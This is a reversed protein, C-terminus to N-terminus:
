SPVRAAFAVAGSPSALRVSVDPPAFFAGGRSLSLKSGGASVEVAEGGGSRYIFGLQPSPVTNLELPKGGPLDISVLEFEQTPTKYRQVGPGGASEPVLIRPPDPEIRAIRLLEPVDIHKKTLGCRLVNDSNAMIEVAAGELYAHLTGAPLFLGQGPQLHVLNLLTIVPLGRDYTNRTCFIEAAKLVWFNHEERSFLKEGAEKKLRATWSGLAQDVTEQPATLIRELLRRLGAGTPDFGEALAALEPAGALVAAIEKLPRFGRLAYFDTLAVVLEPKHNPDKYNRTPADRPIGAREERNFGERAQEASPHVQLSLPQSAALIKLLFPLQGFSEAVRAGLLRQPDQEILADLRRERGGVVIRAPLLPHAGIWVEAYPLNKPNPIGLLNPIFARDGWAYHQIGPKLLYVAPELESLGPAQTM